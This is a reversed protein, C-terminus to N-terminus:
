DYICFFKRQHTDKGAQLKGAVERAVDGLDTRPAAKSALLYDAIAKRRARDAGEQYPKPNPDDEDGQQKPRSLSWWAEYAQGVLFLVYARRPSSPRKALFVEGEQIVARFQDVGKRCTTSTDWGSNLLLVFAKEGWPNLPYKAWLRWLFDHQYYWGSGLESWQFTLGYATMEDRFQKCEPSERRDCWLQGALGDAALLLPPKRQVSATKEAKLVRVLVDRVAPDDSKATEHGLVGGLEPLIDHLAPVLQEHVDAQYAILPDPPYTSDEAVARQAEVGFCLALLAMLYRWRRLVMARRVDNGRIKM